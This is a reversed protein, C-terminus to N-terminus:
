LTNEDKAINPNVAMSNSTHVHDSNILMPKTHSLAMESSSSYTNGPTPSLTGAIQSGNATSSKTWSTMSNILEKGGILAFGQKWLKRVDKNHM